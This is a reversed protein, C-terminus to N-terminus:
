RKDSYKSLSEKRNSCGDYIFTFTIFLFSFKIKKSKTFKITEYKEKTLTLYVESNFNM